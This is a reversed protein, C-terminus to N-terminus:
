NPPCLPRPRVGVVPLAPACPQWCWIRPRVEFVMSATEGLYLHGKLKMVLRRTPPPAPAMAVVGM